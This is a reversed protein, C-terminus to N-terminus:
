LLSMKMETFPSPGREEFGLKKYLPKGLETSSLEIYSLNERKAREILLSMTGTAYGMRRYEPYTLVNFIMSTKGTPFSLNAPKEFIALFATSAINAADDAALAAFFDRNLHETYYRRLESRISDGINDTYEWREAAFYDFRLKILRDIDEYTAM